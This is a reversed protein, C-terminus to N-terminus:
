TQRERRLMDLCTKSGRESVCHATVIATACPRSRFDKSRGLAICALRGRAGNWQFGLGRICSMGPSAVKGCFGPMISVMYPLGPFSLSFFLALSKLFIPLPNKTSVTVIVLVVPQTRPHHIVKHSQVIKFSLKSRFSPCTELAIRSTNAKESIM